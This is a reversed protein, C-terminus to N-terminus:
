PKVIISDYGERDVAPVQPIPDSTDTPPAPDSPEPQEPQPDSQVPTDPTLPTPNTVPTNGTTPPATVTGGPTAPTVTGGPTAPTSVTPTQDTKNEGSPASEEEFADFDVAGEVVSDEPKPSVTAPPQDTCGGFALLLLLSFLVILKKM